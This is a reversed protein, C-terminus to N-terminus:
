RSALTQAAADLLTQPDIVSGTMLTVQLVAQHALLDLGTVLPRGQAQASRMLPTPWPDYIADFVVQAASSFEHERDVLADSPVTSVLLDVSETVAVNLDVVSVTLGLQEIATATGAARQADRARLEVHSAGLRKGALALSAATAGAGVIRVTEIPPRHVQRLASCAGPVDTNHAAWGDGTAVLTNAVGLDKVVEDRTLALETAERKLPATVSFGRWDSRQAVFSALEGESVDFSGYTWGLGLTAYAARHMAPSLSHSIPSGLVACKM